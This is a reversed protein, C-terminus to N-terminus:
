AYGLLGFRACFWDASWRRTARLRAAREATDDRALRTRAARAAWHDGQAAVLRARLAGDFHLHILRLRNYVAQLPDIGAAPATRFRHAVVVDPHVRNEYGSLWARRCFELDESGWRRLGEDYGGLADFVTRPVLQYLAPQFPVAVPSPPRGLWSMDLGDDVWTGGYGCPRLDGTHTVAPGAIGTAPRADFIALLPPLWGAPVYCHGDLFALHRGRAARAGLNRARAPGLGARRLLRIRGAAALAALTEASADRSGDDVVVIECAVEGSHREVADSTDLVNAGEDRTAVVVSVAIADGASV